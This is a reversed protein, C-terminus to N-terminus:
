QVAYRLITRVKEPATKRLDSLYIEKHHGCIELGKEDLFNHLKELTPGENDYSGLHLIQACKSENITEYNVESALHIDKKEIVMQIAEEVHATNVFEPMRILIKWYWEERPVEDFPMESEVWWYAEMKPVVFDIGEDKTFKKITFAVAYIAQISNLFLDAMPAGVGSITLYDIPGLTILSPHSSASYYTRDTKKLDNKTQTIEM